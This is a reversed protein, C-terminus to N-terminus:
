SFALHLDLVREARELLAMAIAADHAALAADVHDVLGLAAEFCTLASQWVLTHGVRRESFCFVAVCIRQRNKKAQHADMMVLLGSRKSIFAVRPLM